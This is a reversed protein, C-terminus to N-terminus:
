SRSREAERNRANCDMQAAKKSAYEDIIENTMRDIVQHPDRLKNGIGSLRTHVYFRPEM